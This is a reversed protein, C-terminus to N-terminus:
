RQEGPRITAELNALPDPILGTNEEVNQLANLPQRLTPVEDIIETRFQKTPDTAGQYMSKGIDM